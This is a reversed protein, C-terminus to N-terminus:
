LKEVIKDGMEKGEDTAEERHEEWLKKVYDVVFCKLTVEDAIPCEEGYRNLLSMLFKREENTLSVDILTKNKEM